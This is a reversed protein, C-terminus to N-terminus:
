SELFAEINVIYEYRSRDNHLNIEEQIHTIADKKSINNVKMLHNIVAFERGKVTALGYHKVEHCAPCLSILRKLTQIRNIDDYEWVEHAEVPWKSGKGGCIECRYNADKYCQKRYKDWVSRSLLSRLNIGWTNTPVMEIELKM